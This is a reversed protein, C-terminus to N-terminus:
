PDLLVSVASFCVFISAPSLDIRESTALSNERENSAGNVEVVLPAPAPPAVLTNAKKDFSVADEDEDDEIALAERMFGGTLVSDVIFVKETVGMDEEDEDEEVGVIRLSSLAGVGESKM